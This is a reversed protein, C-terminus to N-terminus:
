ITGKRDRPTLWRSKIQNPKIQNSEKLMLDVWWGNYSSGGYGVSSAVAQCDTNVRAALSTVEFGLSRLVNGFFTNLQLCHGGRNSKSKVMNHFLEDADLSVERHPSYHLALNEFPVKALQFRMLATLFPLGPVVNRALHPHALISSSLYPEPLKIFALYAELQSQSYLPRTSRANSQSSPDMPQGLHSDAKSSVNGYEKCLLTAMLTGKINYGLTINNTNPDITTEYRNCRWGALGRTGVESYWEVPRTYDIRADM